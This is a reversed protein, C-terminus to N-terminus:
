QGVGSASLACATWSHEPMTGGFSRQMAAVRSTLGPATKSRIATIGARYAHRRVGVLPLQPHQLCLSQQCGLAASSFRSGTPHGATLNGSGVSWDIGLESACAMV